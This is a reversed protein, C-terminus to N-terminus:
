PPIPCDAGIEAQKQRVLDIFAMRASPVLRLVALFARTLQDEHRSGRSYPTFYNLRDM